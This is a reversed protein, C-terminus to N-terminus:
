CSQPMLPKYSIHFRKQMYDMYENGRQVSLIWLCYDKECPVNEGEVYSAPISFSRFVNWLTIPPLSRFPWPFCAGHCLRRQWWSRSEM